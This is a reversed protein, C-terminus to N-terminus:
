PYKFFLEIPFIVLSNTHSSVLVFFLILKWLVFKLAYIFVIKWNDKFICVVWIKKKKKKKKKNNNYIIYYRNYILKLKFHDNSNLSRFSIHENIFKM